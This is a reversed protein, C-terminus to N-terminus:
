KYRGRGGRPCGSESTQRPNRACIWCGGEPYYFRDEMDEGNPVPMPGSTWTWLDHLEPELSGELSDVVKDGIVPFFKSVRESWGVALFLGEYAPHYSMTFDAKSRVLVVTM